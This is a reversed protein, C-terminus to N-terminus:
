RTCTVWAAQAHAMAALGGSGCGLLYGLAAVVIAGVALYQALMTM